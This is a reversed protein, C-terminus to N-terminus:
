KQDFLFKQLKKQGCIGKGFSGRWTVIMHETAITDPCHHHEETCLSLFIPKAPGEQGRDWHLTSTYKIAAM